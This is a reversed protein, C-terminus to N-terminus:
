ERVWLTKEQIAGRKGEPAPKAIYGLYFLGLLKDKEELKFFPKAEDIYTVGGTSWYSGIGLATAMLAMNQVACAVACVEEIEPLSENAQRKMCIAIIHSAKLPNNKLKEYKVEQYKESPTHKKYMGAQYDALKKLGEGQFVMFRWPETRKHTPAWNAAELVQEVLSDEIAEGSYQRPFISRRNQILHTIEAVNYQM